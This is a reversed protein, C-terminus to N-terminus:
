KSLSRIRKHWTMQNLLFMFLFFVYRSMYKIYVNKLFSNMAMKKRTNIVSNPLLTLNTFLYTPLNSSNGKIIKM